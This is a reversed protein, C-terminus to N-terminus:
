LSVEYVAIASGDTDVDHRIFAPEIKAAERRLRNCEEEDDRLYLAENAAALLAARLDTATSHTGNM